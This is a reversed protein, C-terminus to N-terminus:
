RGPAPGREPVLGPMPSFRPYIHRGADTAPDRFIWDLALAPPRGQTLHLMAALVQGDFSEFGAARPAENLGFGETEGREGVFDLIALAIPRLSLGDLRRGIEDRAADLTLPEVHPIPRPDPM